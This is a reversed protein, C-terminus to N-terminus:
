NLQDPNILEYVTDRQQAPRGLSQVASRLATVTQCTGGQAGAMSTIHEEMLTGGIDNCGWTLATTAGALGLKVWSPQHNTIWNGLFIRAVAMLLLADSLVPQDRGVRRRLPKPADQGVFPLLIFETFRAPYQREIAQQQLTRLWGLHRMQQEPTEIHGSLLTSTTPMGLQHATSIIALWTASDIKEPCLVQRVQDDLVEAATGPMSGV